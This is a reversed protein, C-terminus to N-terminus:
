RLVQVRFGITGAIHDDFDAFDTSRFEDLGPRNMAHLSGSVGSGSLVFHAIRREDLLAAAKHESV